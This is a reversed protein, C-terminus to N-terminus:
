NKAGPTAIVRLFVNTQTHKADSGTIVVKVDNSSPANATWSILGSGMNLRMGCPVGEDSDDAGEVFDFKVPKSEESVAITYDLRQGVRVVLTTEAPSLLVPPRCESKKKFRATYCGGPMRGEVKLSHDYWIATGDPALWDVLCEDKGPIADLTITAGDPLIGDKPKMSVKSSTGTGEIKFSVNRISSKLIEDATRHGPITAVYDALVKDVADMFECVLSKGSNSVGMMGPRGSFVVRNTVGNERVWYLIVHPPKPYQDPSAAATFKHAKEGEPSLAGKLKEDIFAMPLLREESWQRFAEGALAKRLRACYPCSAMAHIALMPRHTREAEKMVQQFSANWEGPKVSGSSISVKPPAAIVSSSLAVACLLCAAACKRRPLFWGNPRFLLWVAPVLLVVDRFIATLLEKRGGNEPMGFCGCSIDLGRAAAQTLAIIFMLLMAVIFLAAERNWKTLVLAAGALLEVMPVVLSFIGVLFVPLLRYRMVADAFIAPDDIKSVASYVFVACLALRCLREVVYVTMEKSSM